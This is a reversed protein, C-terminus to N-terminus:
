PVPQLRLTALKPQYRPSPTSRRLLALRQNDRAWVEADTATRDRAFGEARLTDRMASRLVVVAQSEAVIECPGATPVLVRLGGTGRALMPSLFSSRAFGQARLRDAVAAPVFGAAICARTVTQGAEALDGVAAHDQPPLAAACGGLMLGAVAM